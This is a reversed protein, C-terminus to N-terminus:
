GASTLSVTVKEIAKSTRNISFHVLVYSAISTVIADSFLPILTYVATNKKFHFREITLTAKTDFM